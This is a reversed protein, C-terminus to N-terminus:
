SEMFNSITEVSEIVNMLKGDKFKIVAMDRDPYIMSVDDLNVLCKKWDYDMQVTLKVLMLM